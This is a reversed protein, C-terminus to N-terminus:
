VDAARHPLSYLWQTSRTSTSGGSGADGDLGLFSAIAEAASLADERAAPAVRRPRCRQQVLAALYDNLQTVRAEVVRASRPQLVAKSPLICGPPAAGLRVLAHHLQEFERYRRHVLREGGGAPLRVRIAFSTYLRGGEGARTETLAADIAADDVDVAVLESSQRSLSAPLVDARGPANMLQADARADVLVRAMADEVAAIFSADDAGTSAARLEALAPSLAAAQRERAELELARRRGEAALHQGLRGAM